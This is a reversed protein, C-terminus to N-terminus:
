RKQQKLPCLYDINPYRVWNNEYFFYFFNDLVLINLINAM